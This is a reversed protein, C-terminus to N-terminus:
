PARSRGGGGSKKGWIGVKNARAKALKEKYVKLKELSPSPQHTGKDFWVYGHELLLAIIDEGLKTRM